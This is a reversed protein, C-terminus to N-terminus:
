ASAQIKEREANIYDAQNVKPLFRISLNNATTRRYSIVGDAVLADLQEIVEKVSAKEVETGSREAEALKWLVYGNASAFFQLNHLMNLKEPISVNSM